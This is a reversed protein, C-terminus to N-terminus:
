SPPRSTQPKQSLLLALLPFLDLTFVKILFRQCRCRGHLFRQRRRRGAM